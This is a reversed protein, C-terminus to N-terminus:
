LVKIKLKYLFSFSNTLREENFFSKGMKFFYSKELQMISFISFHTLFLESSPLNFLSSNFIQRNM